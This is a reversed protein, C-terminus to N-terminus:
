LGFFEITNKRTSNAIEETSRNLSDAIKKLVYPLYSPENRRDSPRDKMNGPLMFPGDTEIMLKNLPIKRVIDELYIRRKDCIAGTIGIYLGMDLYKNVEKLNGTFCHVVAKKLKPAYESIIEVFSEHAEREHLFVPKDLEIALKLQEIFWKKQIDRPSFDRDFDLGCEGIAVVEKNLALKRIEEITNQNCDKANHPHIGATSYLIGHYNKAINLGTQSNKLTTGTIIMKTVGAEVARDIVAQRDDQYKPHMLNIGIDIIEM